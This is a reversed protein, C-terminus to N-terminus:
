QVRRYWKKITGWLFIFLFTVYFVALLNHLETIQSSVIELTIASGSVVIEEM